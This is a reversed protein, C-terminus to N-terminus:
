KFSIVVNILLGIKFLLNPIQKIPGVCVHNKSFFFNDDSFCKSVQSHIYKSYRRSNIVFIFLINAFLIGFTLTFVVLSQVIDGVSLFYWITVNQYRPHNCSSNSFSPPVLVIPKTVM